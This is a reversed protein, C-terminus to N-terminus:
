DIMEEEKAKEKVATQKQVAVEVREQEAQVIPTALWEKATALITPRTLLLHWRKGGLQRWLVASRVGALLLARVKHLVSAQHLYLAEGSVHIRFSFTSLTDTYLSALNAMVNEHTPSFHKSQIEARLIGTRIQHLMQPNHFLKREIHMLSFAYRAINADKPFRNNTFLSIVEHLGLSLQQPDGYIALPNQADISFLSKISSSFFPEAVRGTKALQNVLSASQFLGALALVRGQVTSITM